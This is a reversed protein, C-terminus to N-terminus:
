KHFHHSLWSSSSTLSFIQRALGTSSVSVGCSFFCGFRDPLFDFPFYARQQPKDKLLLALGASEIQISDLHGHPSGHMSDTGGRQALQQPAIRRARILALHGAGATV